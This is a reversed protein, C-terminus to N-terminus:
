SVHDINRTLLPDGAAGAKAKAAHDIYAARNTDAAILAAAFHLTADDPRLSLSRQILSYGRGNEVLPRVAAARARFQSSDGLMSVERLAENVYAADLYVIADPRGAAEAARVRNMVQDLLASAVKGDQSAYLVARRLTEMRVIVPTSTTLLAATDAVVNQIDYGPLGNSWGASGWPLSRAQGIDYPHCLLPPGAFAPVAMALIGVLLGPVAISRVHM